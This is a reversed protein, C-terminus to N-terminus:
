FKGCLHDSFGAKRGLTKTYAFNFGNIM